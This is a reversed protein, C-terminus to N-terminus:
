YPIPVSASANLNIGLPGLPIKELFCELVATELELIGVSNIENKASKLTLDQGLNSCSCTWFTERFNVVRITLNYRKFNLSFNKEVRGPLSLLGKVARPAFFKLYVVKLNQVMM